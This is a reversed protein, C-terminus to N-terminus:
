RPTAEPPSTTNLGRVFVRDWVGNGLTAANSSRWWFFQDGIPEAPNTNAKRGAVFLDGSVGAPSYNDVFGSTGGPIWAITQTDGQALPTYTIYGGQIAAVLFLNGDGSAALKPDQTLFAGGTSLWPNLTAPWNLWSDGSIRAAWTNDTKDRAALYAVNDTGCTLSPKGKLLGGGGFWTSSPTGDSAIRVMWLPQEEVGASWGKGVVYINGDACSTMAPDTSFLGGGALKSAFPSPGFGTGPNLSAWYYQVEGQAGLTGRVVVYAIGTTENVALAPMGSISAVPGYWNSWTQTNAFFVRAYLSGYFDKAVMYTDGTSKRQAVAITDGWDGGFATTVNDGFTAFEIANRPSIFGASPVAYAGLKVIYADLGGQYASSGSTM